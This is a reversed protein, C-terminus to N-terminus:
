PPPWNSSPTPRPWIWYRAESNWASAGLSTAGVPNLRGSVGAPRGELGSCGTAAGAPKRQPQARRAAPCAVESACITNQWAYGSVESAAMPHLSCGARLSGIALVRACLGCSIRAAASAAASADTMVAASSPAMAPEAEAADAAGALGPVPGPPASAPPTLPPLPVAAVPLPRDRLAPVEAACGGLACTVETRMVLAVQM